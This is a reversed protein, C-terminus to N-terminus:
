DTIESEFLMDSVSFFVLCIDDHFCCKTTLLFNNGSFNVSNKKEAEAKEIKGYKVIWMFSIPILTSCIAKIYAM